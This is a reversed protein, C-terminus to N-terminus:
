TGIDSRMQKGPWSARGAQEYARRLAAAKTDGLGVANLVRGGDTIWSGKSSKATGAHLFYSHPSEFGIGGEIPVGTVPKSPYGKGALVVCASYFNKKWELNPLQGEAVSLFVKAWDAEKKQQGVHSLLPLLVQAEPDGFRVNYELVVPNNDVIMLGTYLVGRYCLDRKKMEQICPQIINKEINKQLDPPIEYPAVAGMGGTNPGKDGTKLKKYDKAFPLLTYETGNTLLFVSLEKGKQFEEVLAQEGAKGFIKQEFLLDASQQLEQKNHCIFVGKGGALGDAKLVVPFGFSLATTLASKKDTVKKFKATPIGASTMFQKAFLKSAELGTAAKSPGFVPVNLSRFFDSWGEALEKEPGIIVLHINKQRILEKLKQKELLSQSLCVAQQEFGARGPLVFVRKVSPSKDLARAIAHERGGKGLILINM